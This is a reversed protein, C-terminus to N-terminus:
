KKFYFSQSMVSSTDAAKLLSLAQVDGVLRIANHSHSDSALVAGNSPKVNQILAPLTSSHVLSDGFQAAYMQPDTVSVGLNKIRRNLVM